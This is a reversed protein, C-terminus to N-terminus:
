KDLNSIGDEDVLTIYRGDFKEQDKVWKKLEFIDTENEPTIILVNEQTMEFKM